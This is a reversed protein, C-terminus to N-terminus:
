WIVNGESDRPWNSDVSDFVVIGTAERVARIALLWHGNMRRVAFNQAVTGNRAHIWIGLHLHDRPDLNRSGFSPAQGPGVTGVDFQSEGRREAERTLAHADVRRRIEEFSLAQSYDRVRVRVDYLPYDGELAVMLQIRRSGAASEFVPLAYGFSSGGTTFALNERTLRAIEESKERLAKEALERQQSAQLRERNQQANLMFAGIASLFAGALVVLMPIGVYDPLKM